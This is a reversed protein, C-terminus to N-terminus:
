GPVPVARDSIWVGIRARARDSIWGDPMHNVVWSIQPIKEYFKHSKRPFIKLIQSAHNLCIILVHVVYVTYKLLLLSIAHLALDYCFSLKGTTCTTTCFSASVYLCIAYTLWTRYDHTDRPHMISPHVYIGYNISCYVMYVIYWTCLSWPVNASFNDCM